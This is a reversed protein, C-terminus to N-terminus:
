PRIVRPVAVKGHGSAAIISVGEAPKIATRASNALLSAIVGIFWSGGTTPANEGFAFARTLRWALFEVSRSQQACAHLDRLGAKGPL